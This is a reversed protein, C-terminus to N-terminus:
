KLHLQLILTAYAPIGALPRYGTFGGGATVTLDAFPSTGLLPLAFYTGAVLKSSDLSLKFNTVSSGSLNILVLVAEDQSIRLIAYLRPDDSQIFNVDGIRLAAHQSRLQILTRYHTLISSPDTTEAAVNYTPYGVGFSEWPSTTSFGASSDTSWQMPRRISEDPKRGQQGIEEGYYIFPTGPATLLMSAAVMVKDPNDRLQSMLRDQDHNTLFPAFQMGPIFKNSLQLQSIAGSASGRNASAVM